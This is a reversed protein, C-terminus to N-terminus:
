RCFTAAEYRSPPGGRRRKVDTLPGRALPPAAPQGAQAPTRGPGHCNACRSAAVPLAFDQGVIRGSLPAEGHFLQHGRAAGPEDNAVAAGCLVALCVVFARATTM